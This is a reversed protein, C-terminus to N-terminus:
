YSTNFQQRGRVTKVRGDEQRVGEPTEWSYKIEPPNGVARLSIERSEGEVM